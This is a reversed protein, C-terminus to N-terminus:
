SPGGTSINIRVIGGDFDWTRKTVKYMRGSITLHDGVAPPTVLKTNLVIGEDDYFGVDTGLEMQLEGPSTAGYRMM